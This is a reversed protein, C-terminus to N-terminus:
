SYRMFTTYLWKGIWSLELSVPELYCIEEALLFCAMCPNLLTNRCFDPVILNNQGADVAFKDTGGCRVDFM